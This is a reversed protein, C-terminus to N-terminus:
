ESTSQQLKLWLSGALEQQNPVDRAWQERGWKSFYFYLRNDIIRWNRPNAGVKHGDSLGNACHGGYQPAYREPDAAFLDRHEASVFHWDAAQWHFSFAPDGRMARQQTFYGVVDFGGVAVGKHNKNWAGDAIAMQWTSSVFLWVFVTMWARMKM